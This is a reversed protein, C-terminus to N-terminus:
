YPPKAKADSRFEARIANLSVACTRRDFVPLTCTATAAADTRIANEFAPAFLFFGTAPNRGGSPYGIGAVHPPDTFDLEGPRAHTQLEGPPVPIPICNFGLKRAAKAADASWFCADQDSHVGPTSFWASM